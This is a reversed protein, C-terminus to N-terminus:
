VSIQALQWGKKVPLCFSTSVAPRTSRKRWFYPLCTAPELESVQTEAVPEPVGDLPGRLYLSLEGIRLAYPVLLAHGRQAALVPMQLGQDFHPVSELLVLVLERFGALEDVRIVGLHRLFCLGFRDSELHGDLRQDLLYLGCENRVIRQVIPGGNDLDSAAGAAVLCRDEGGIQVAHVRAEGFSTAPSDFDDRLGVSRQTPHLFCDELDFALARVARHAPLRADVAHLSHGYRFTLAANM